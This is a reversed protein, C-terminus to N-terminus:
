ILKSVVELTDRPMSKQRKQMFDAFTMGHEVIDCQFTWKTRPVSQDAYKTLMPFLSGFCASSVFARMQLDDVKRKVAMRAAASLQRISLALVVSARSTLLRDCWTLVAVGVALWGFARTRCCDFM